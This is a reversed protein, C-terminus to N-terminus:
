PNAEFFARAAAVLVQVSRDLGLVTPDLFMHYLAPSNPDARYLRKVFMTRAKDTENLRARVAERDLGELGCAWTLRREPDGDLRVHFARPRSKLVVAAARGLVLGAAGSQIGRLPAESRNRITEDDDVLPDPAMMAGVSAARAFYSFFRGGPTAEQEGESLGESSRIEPVTDSADESLLLRDIFPLDLEQALRPAIVSGGTGYTASVTVAPGFTSDGM